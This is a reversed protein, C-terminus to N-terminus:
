EKKNVAGDNKFCFVFSLTLKNRFSESGISKIRIIEKKIWKPIDNLQILEFPKLQCEVAVNRKQVFLQINMQKEDEVGDRHNDTLPESYIEDNM